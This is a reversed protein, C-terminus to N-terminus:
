DEWSAYLKRKELLVVEPRILAWFPQLQKNPQDTKVLSLRNPFTEDGCRRDILNALANLNSHCITRAVDWSAQDEMKKM